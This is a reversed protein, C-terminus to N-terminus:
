TGLWTLSPVSRANAANIQRGTMGVGALAGARAPCNPGDDRQACDRIPQARKKMDPPREGFAMRLARFASPPVAQTFPDRIDVPATCENNAYDAQVSTFAARITRQEAKCGEFFDPPTGEEEQERCPSDDNLPSSAWTGFTRLNADPKLPEIRVVWMPTGCLPCPPRESPTPSLLHPTGPM